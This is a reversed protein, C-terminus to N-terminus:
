TVVKRNVINLLIDVMGFCYLNSIVLEENSM